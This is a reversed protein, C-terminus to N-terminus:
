TCVMSMNNWRNFMYKAISKNHAYHKPWDIRCGGRCTQYILSFERRNEQKGKEKHILCRIFGSSYLLQFITTILFHVCFLHKIKWIVIPNIVVWSLVRYLLVLLNQKEWKTPVITLLCGSANHLVYMVRIKHFTLMFVCILCGSPPPYLAKYKTSWLLFGFSIPCSVILKDTATFTDLKWSNVLKDWSFHVRKKKASINALLLLNTVFYVFCSM